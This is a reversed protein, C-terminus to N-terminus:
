RREAVEDRKLSEQWKQQAERCAPCYLVIRKAPFHLDKIAPPNDPGGPTFIRLQKVLPPTAVCGGHVVTSAHPFLSRKADRRAADMYILGYSVPVVDKRLKEHHLSCFFHDNTRTVSNTTVLYRQMDVALDDDVSVIIMENSAAMGDAAYASRLPRLVAMLFWLFM